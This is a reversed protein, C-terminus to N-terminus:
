SLWGGCWTTGVCPALTSILLILPGLYAELKCQVVTMRLYAELKCQVITMRLYAELKCQVITMRLYAEAGSV